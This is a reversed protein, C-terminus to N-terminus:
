KWASPRSLQKVVQHSSVLWVFVIRNISLQLYNEVRLVWLAANEEAAAHKMRNLQTEEKTKNKNKKKLIYKWEKKTSVM